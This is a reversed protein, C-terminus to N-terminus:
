GVAVVLDDALTRSKFGPGVKRARSQAQRLRLPSHTVGILEADRLVKSVLAIIQPDVWRHSWLRLEPVARPLYAWSTLVPGCPRVPGSLASDISVGNMSGGSSACPPQRALAGAGAVGSQHRQRIRFNM